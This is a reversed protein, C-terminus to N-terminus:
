NYLVAFRCFAKYQSSEMEQFLESSFYVTIKETFIKEDLALIRRVNKRSERDTVYTAKTTIIDTGVLPTTYGHPKGREIGM